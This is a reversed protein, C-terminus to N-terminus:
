FFTELFLFLPHVLFIVVLDVVIMVMTVMEMWVIKDTESLVLKSIEVEISEFVLTGEFFESSYQIVVM